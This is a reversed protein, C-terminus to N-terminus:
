RPKCVANVATRWNRQLYKTKNLRDRYEQVAAEFDSYLCDISVPLYFKKKNPDNSVIQLHNINRFTIKGKDSDVKIKDKHRNGKYFFWQLRSNSNLKLIKPQYLHVLGNRYMDYLKTVTNFSYESKPSFFTTVFKIAKHSTAIQQGKKDKKREALHYGSFVAGLFDVMCFIQRVTVFYGGQRKRPKIWNGIELKTQPLLENNIFAVMETANMNRKFAM